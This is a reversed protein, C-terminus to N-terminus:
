LVMHMKATYNLTPGERETSTRDGDTGCPCICFRCPRHPFPVTSEPRGSRAPNARSGVPRPRTAKLALAHWFAALTTNVHPSFTLPFTANTVTACQLM